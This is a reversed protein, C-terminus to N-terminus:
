IRANDIESERTATSRSRANLDRKSFRTKLRDTPYNWQRPRVSPRRAVSSKASEGTFYAPRAAHFAEPHRGEGGRGPQRYMKRQHRTASYKPCVLRFPREVPLLRVGPGLGIETPGVAVQGSLKLHIIPNAKSIESM